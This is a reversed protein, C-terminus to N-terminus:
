TLQAHSVARVFEAYKIAGSNDRDFCRFLRRATRSDAQLELRKLLLEFEDVDMEGSNDGDMKSFLGKTTNFNQGHVKNRIRLLLEANTLEPFLVDPNTPKGHSYDQSRLTRLLEGKSVKANGDKDLVKMMEESLEPSLRFGYSVFLKSIEAYDLTGSKDADMKDFLESLRLGGDVMRDHIAGFVESPKFRKGDLKAPRDVIMRELKAEDAAAEGGEGGGGGGGGAAAGTTTGIDSQLTRVLESHRVTGDGDRDFATFIRLAMDDTVEFGLTRLCSAWEGADLEGSNDKDAKKFIDRVSLFNDAYVRARVRMLAEQVTLTEPLENGQGAVSMTSIFEDISVKGDANHDLKRWLDARLEGDVPFGQAALVKCLEDESLFGSGDADAYRFAQRLAWPSPTQRHIVRLFEDATTAEKDVDDFVGSISSFMAGM